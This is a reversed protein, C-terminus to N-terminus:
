YAKGRPWISLVEIIRESENVQYIIRWDGVRSTRRGPSMRIPKSLRPDLPNESLQRFREEIRRMTSTDLNKLEKQAQRGLNLEYSM